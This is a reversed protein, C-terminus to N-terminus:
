RLWVDVSPALRAAMDAAFWAAFAGAIVDLTYHARLVLVLVAEGIAILIALGGLWWPAIQCVGIAGLVALATHGSFFFDNSVGYTVLLSPFGPDRWIIGPPPPLTCCLQCVQRLSFVILVGIFPAFTPGFIASAILFLGLVDILFSSLALSRNAVKENNQFCRHWGATLDHIVDGIGGDAARKRGILKQTWFWVVLALAIVGIRLAIATM